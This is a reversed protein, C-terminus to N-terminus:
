GNFGFYSLWPGAIREFPDYDSLAAFVSASALAAFLLGAALKPWFRRRPHYTM